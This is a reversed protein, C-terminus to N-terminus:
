RQVFTVVVQDTPEEGGQIPQLDILDDDTLVASSTGASLDVPKIMLQGSANLYGYCCESKILDNATSVYGASIDIQTSLFRSYLPRSGLAINVGIKSMCHYLLTSATVPPYALITASLRPISSNVKYTPSTYRPTPSKKDQFLTLRCGVEMSTTGRYPDATARIVYLQRPFRTITNAQPRYYALEVESGRAPLQIGQLLLSGTTTILGGETLLSDGVQGQIVTGLNCLIQSRVDVPM